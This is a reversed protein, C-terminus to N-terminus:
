IQDAPPVLHHKVLIADLHDCVWGHDGPAAKNQVADALHEFASWFDAAQPKNRVLGPISADLTDLMLELEARSRAM